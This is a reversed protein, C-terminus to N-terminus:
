RIPLASLDAAVGFHDSLKKGEHINSVVGLSSFGLDNSLAIHDICKRGQHALASTLIIMGTPLAEQLASRLTKPARSVSGIAQNFDGAVILRKSSMRGLVETLGSLYQEHDEWRKKRESTRRAETRSGFWPICIGLVMIEGVSTQTVGSVFRGPPMSDIGVDDVQEWPERSWLMVKRRGDKIPYGYDPQSCITHGGQSLLGTHTETLCIVEPDHRQIRRLIEARRSSRPTAWEVNWNVLKLSM